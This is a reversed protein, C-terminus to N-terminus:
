NKNAMWEISPQMQRELNQPEIHITLENAGRDHDKLMFTKMHQKIPGRM